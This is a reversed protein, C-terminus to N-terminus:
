ERYELILATFNDQYPRNAEQVASQIRKAASNMDLELAQELQHDSLTGFVGDTALLVRDGSLLKIGKSNRDLGPIIGIGFYSTLAHVQRDSQVQSLPIERNIAKVALEERYIHERNLQLLAGGRYLYLHSDGVTLFYLKGDRIVASVLTSGSRSMGRLMQNIQANAQSALALLLEDPQAHAAAGSFGEQFSRVLASSVISGNALGGMGDAVVALVGQQAYLSLDSCGYSDQQDERAGLGQLPVAKVPLQAPAEPITSGEGVPNISTEQKLTTQKTRKRSRRLTDVVLCVLLLVVLALAAYLWGSGLGNTEPEAAAQTEETSAVTTEATEANGTEEAVTEEAETQEVAPSETEAPETQGPNGLEGVGSFPYGNGSLNAFSIGGM